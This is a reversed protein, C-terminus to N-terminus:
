FKFDLSDFVVNHQNVFVYAKLKEDNMKKHGRFFYPKDIKYFTNLFIQNDEGFYNKEPNGKQEKIRDIEAFCDNEPTDVADNYVDKATAQIKNAVFTVGDKVLKWGKGAYHIIKNGFGM